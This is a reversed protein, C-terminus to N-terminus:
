FTEKDIKALIKDVEKTVNEIVEHEQAKPHREKYRIAHSAGAIVAMKLVKEEEEM